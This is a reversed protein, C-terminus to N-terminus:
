ELKDISHYYKHYQYRCQSYTIIEMLATLENALFTSIKQKELVAMLSELKKQDHACTHVM